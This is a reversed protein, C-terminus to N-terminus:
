YFSVFQLEITVLYLTTINGFTGNAFGCIRYWFIEDNVFIKGNIAVLNATAYLVCKNILLLWELKVTLIPFCLKAPNDRSSNWQM